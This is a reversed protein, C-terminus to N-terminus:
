PLLDPGWITLTGSARAYALMRTGDPSWRLLGGDFSDLYPPGSLPQLTALKRGTACDYLTVPQISGFTTSIGYAALVRGDPRWAVNWGREAVNPVPGLNLLAQLAKDRVPLFASQGPEFYDPPLSPPQGKPVLVANTGLLSYEFAGDPGVLWNGDPSWVAFATSFSYASPPALPAPPATPDSNTIPSVTGPQWITFTASGDPNGVPELPSAPPVVGPVLPTQPILTGNTGWRYALAISFAAPMYPGPASGLPVPDGTALNWEFLANEQPSFLARVQSGDSNALVIGDWFTNRGNQRFPVSAQFPLAIRHGDPPSWLVQSYIIQVGGLVPLPGGSGAPPLAPVDTPDLAHLEALVPGDPHIRALLKNSSADYVLVANPVYHQADQCPGVQDSLCGLLAIRKGDLSWAMDQLFSMDAGSVRLAGPQPPQREFLHLQPFGRVSIAITLLALAVALVASLTRRLRQRPTLGTGALPRASWIALRRAPRPETGRLDSVEAVFTEDLESPQPPPIAESM